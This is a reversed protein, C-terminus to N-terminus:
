TQHQKYVQYACVLAILSTAISTYFVSSLGYKTSIFGGGVGGIFGTLGYGIVTYLAQGRGRQRGPFHQSLMAICATHHTAFTIAHLMQAFVLLAFVTASTATIGTRLVMVASCVMLWAPLSM